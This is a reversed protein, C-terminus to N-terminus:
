TGGKRPAGECLPPKDTWPSLLHKNHRVCKSNSLPEVHQRRGYHHDTPSVQLRGNDEHCRIGTGEHCAVVQCQSSAVGQPLHPKMQLPTELFLVKICSCITLSTCREHTYQSPTPTHSECLALITLQSIHRKVSLKYQVPSRQQSQTKCQPLSSVALDREHIWRCVNTFQVISAM